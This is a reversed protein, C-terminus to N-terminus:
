PDGIKKKFWRVENQNRTSNASHFHTRGRRVSESPFGGGFFMNFIEEPSFEASIDFHVLFLDLLCFLGQYFSSRVMLDMHMITSSSIAEKDEAALM